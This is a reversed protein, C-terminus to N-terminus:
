NGKNNIKINEDNELPLESMYNTFRKDLGFVWWLILGFIVLFIVMSIMSLLDLNKANQLIEKFM